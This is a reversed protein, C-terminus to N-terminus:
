PFRCSLAITEGNPLLAPRADSRIKRGARNREGLGLDHENDHEHEFGKELRFSSVSHSVLEM